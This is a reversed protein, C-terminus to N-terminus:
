VRIKKRTDKSINVSKCGKEEVYDSLDNFLDKMYKKPFIVFLRINNKEVTDRIAMRIAEQANENCLEVQTLDFIIIINNKRAFAIKNLLAQQLSSISEIVLQPKFVWVHKVDECFKEIKISNKRIFLWKWKSQKIIMMLRKRHIFSILLVVLTIIGMILPYTVWAEIISKLNM